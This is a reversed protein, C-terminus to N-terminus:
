GARQRKWGHKELNKQVDEQDLAFDIHECEDADCIDCYVLGEEKFYVSAIRNNTFDVIKINDDMMNVHEFRPNEQRLRERIAKDVFDARSRYGRNKGKKSEVFKDIENLLEKKLSVASYHESM